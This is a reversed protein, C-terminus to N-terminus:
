AFLFQVGRQVNQLMQFKKPRGRSQIPVIWVLVLSFYMTRLYNPSRFGTEAFSWEQFGWVSTALNEKLANVLILRKRREATQRRVHPTSSKASSPEIKPKLLAQACKCPLTEKTGNGLSFAPPFCCHHLICLIVWSWLRWIHSPLTYWITRRSQPWPFELFLFTSAQPRFNSM